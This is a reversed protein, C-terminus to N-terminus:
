FAPLYAAQTAANTARQRLFEIAREILGGLSPAKRSIGSGVWLAFEGRALGNAVSAFPGDLKELVQAVSIETASPALAVRKSAGLIRFDAFDRGLMPFHMMKDLEVQWDGM